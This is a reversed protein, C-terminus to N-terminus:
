QVMDWAAIHSEYHANGGVNVSSMGPCSLDTVMRFNHITIGERVLWYM